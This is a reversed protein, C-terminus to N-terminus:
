DFLKDEYRIQQTDDFDCQQKEEEHKVNQQKNVEDISIDDVLLQDDRQQDKDINQGDLINIEHNETQKKHEKRKEELEGQFMRLQSQFGKNPYIKDRIGRAYAFADDFPLQMKWMCYAVIISGSRSIGAACHVLCRGNLGSMPNVNVVADEIFEIANWLHQRIDQSDKDDIQIRKYTFKDPYRPTIGASVILIHTIKHKALMERNEAALVDSIYVGPLILHIDNHKSTTQEM